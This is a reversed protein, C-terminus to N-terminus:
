PAALAEVARPLLQPDGAAIVRGDSGLTLPRGHWDAM